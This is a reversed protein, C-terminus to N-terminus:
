RVAGAIQTNSKCSCCCCHIAMCVCMCVCVWGPLALLQVIAATAITSNLHAFVACPHFPHMSFTPFASSDDTMTCEFPQFSVKKQVNNPVNISNVSHCLHVPQRLNTTTSANTSSPRVSDFSNNDLAHLVNSTTM